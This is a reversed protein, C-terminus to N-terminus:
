ELGNPLQHDVPYGFKALYEKIAEPRNTGLLIRRGNTLVM